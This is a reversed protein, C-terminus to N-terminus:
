GDFDDAFIVDVINFEFAGIDANAGIVRAFGPGRQDTPLGAANNGAEIAPSFTSLAHTATLGGNYALALLQPDDYLTDGPPTQGPLVFQTMNNAGSLAGGGGIDDALSGYVSHYLTNTSIISSELETPVSTFLGAGYSTNMPNLETNFAITSNAIRAPYGTILLGGVAQTAYNGSITSNVLTQPSTAGVGAFFAGAFTSAQNLAITSNEVMVNGAAYLGGIEAANNLLLTSYKMLLGNAVAAGGGVGSAYNFGIGSYEIIAGGPTFVGGGIGLTTSSGATSFAVASNTMIVGNKAYVAGGAAVYSTNATEASCYFLASNSLLITGYSYLCGGQANLNYTNNLYKRGNEIELDYVSLTGGGINSHRLSYMNNGDIAFFGVGPGQLTLDQQNIIIDGTTLTIASCGTATLDITQGSVATNIADRMSGAGSDNCNTVPISGAPVHPIPRPQPRLAPYRRALAPNQDMRKFPTDSLRWNGLLESIAPRDINIRAPAAAITSTGTGLALALALCSALPKLRPGRVRRAYNTDM